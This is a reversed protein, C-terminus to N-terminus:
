LTPQTYVLTVESPAPYVSLFPPTYHLASLVPECSMGVQLLLMGDPGYPDPLAGGWGREDVEGRRGEESNVQVRCLSRVAM